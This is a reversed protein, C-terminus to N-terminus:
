RNQAVVELIFRIITFIFFITYTLTLWKLVFGQKSLSHDNLESLKRSILYYNIGKKLEFPGALKGEIKLAEYKQAFRRKLRLKMSTSVLLNLVAMIILLIFALDNNM